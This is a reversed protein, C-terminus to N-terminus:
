PKEPSKSEPAQSSSFPAGVMAELEAIATLYDTLHDQLASETDRAARQATMLELLTGRDNTYAIESAQVAQQALPLLRDHFLTYHHHLTEAKEIQSRVMGLTEGQLAALEHEGSEQMKEAESIAAKYKGRNIWPLNFFVGTDYEQIGGGAGNFQRAEVRLEPDPIWARKALTRRAKAAEIKKQAGLIEPRHELAMAQMPELPLDFHRVAVNAPRGLPAQPPRNMLVNLHSQEEILRREIDRRAELTKAAETEAMLVDTQSRTGSEYKIRSAEVFRRLLAENKQNLELQAHANALRYYAARAGALLELERRRMETQAVGAEATAARDRWRNRGSLPVQQGVMWEADTFTDFRTTGSREVDVGVRPDEWARAQPIRSRFAEWNSRAAKLSPNNRLVESVVWDISLTNTM